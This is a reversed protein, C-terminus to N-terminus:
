VCVCVCVCACVCMCMCVCAYVCVCACVCAYYFRCHTWNIFPPVVPSDFPSIYILFLPLYVTFSLYPYRALPKYSSPFLSLSCIIFSLFVLFLSFICASPFCSFINLFVLSLFHSLSLFFLFIPFKGNYPPSLLSSHPTLHLNVFHPSLSFHSVYDSHVLCPSFHLYVSTALARTVQRQRM